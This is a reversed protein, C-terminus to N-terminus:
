SVRTLLQYAQREAAPLPWASVELGFVRMAELRGRLREEAAVASSGHRVLSVLAGGGLYATAEEFAVVGRIAERVSASTLAVSLPAFPDSGLVPADRPAATLLAHTRAPSDGVRVAQRYVDGIRSRLHSTSCLGTLPDLCTVEDLFETTAEAWAVCLASTVEFPPDEGVEGYVERLGALAEGLSAGEDALRRGAAASAAAASLGERVAAAVPVFGDAGLVPGAAGAGEDASEAVEGSDVGRRALSTLRPHM